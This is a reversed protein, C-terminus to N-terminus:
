IIPKGTLKRYEDNLKNAKAFDGTSSYEDLIMKATRTGGGAKGNLPKGPPPAKSVVPPKPEPEAVPSSSRAELLAEIKGIMRSARLHHAPDDSTSLQAIQKALKPDKSIEYALEARLGSDTLAFIAVPGFKLDSVEAMVADYDDHDERAKVESQAYEDIRKQHEERQKVAVFESQLTNRVYDAMAATHKDEDFDFESLKPPTKRLPKPAEDAKPATKASRLEALEAELRAIKENKRANRNKRLAPPEPKGKGEPEEEEDEEEEDPPDKKEPASVIEPTEPDAGVEEEILDSQRVPPNLTKNWLADAAHAKNPDKMTEQFAHFDTTSWDPPAVTDLVPDNAM